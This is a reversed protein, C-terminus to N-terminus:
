VSYTWVKHQVSLADHLQLCGGVALVPVLIPAFFTCFLIKALFSPEQKTQPAEAANHSVHSACHAVANVHTDEAHNQLQQVGEAAGASLVSLHPATHESFHEDAEQLLQSPKQEGQQKEEEKGCCRAQQNDEGLPSFPNQQQEATEAQTSGGCAQQEEKEQTSLQLSSPQGVLDHKHDEPNSVPAMPPHCAAAQQTDPGSPVTTSSLSAAHPDVANSTRAKLGSLLEDASSSSPTCAQQATMSDTSSAGPHPDSTSTAPAAESTQVAPSSSDSACAAVATPLPDLTVAQPEHLIAQGLPCEETEASRLASSHVAPPHDAKAVPPDAWCSPPRAAPPSATSDAPQQQQSPLPQPLLMNLVREM